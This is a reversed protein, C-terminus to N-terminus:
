ADIWGRLLDVGSGELGILGAPRGSLALALSPAPGRVRDVAGDRPEHRWGLDTAELRLAPRGRKLFGRAGKGALFDLVDRWPEVPQGPELGLPLCIDLAHLRQDSLPAHWDLGPPSFRHEAHDRLDAVLSATPAAARRSALFSNARDFSLGSRLFAVGFETMTGCPGVMLHAAVERVTWGACLSPTAWQEPTLTELQDALARREVAVVGWAEAEDM